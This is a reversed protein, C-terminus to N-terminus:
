RRFNKERTQEKTITEVVEKIERYLYDLVDDLSLIGELGGRSNVVPVRRV